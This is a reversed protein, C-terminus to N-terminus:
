SAGYAALHWCVRMYNGTLIDTNLLAFILSSDFSEM